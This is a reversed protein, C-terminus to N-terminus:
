LERDLRLLLSFFNLKFRQWASRAPETHYEVTKGNEMTRWIPRPHPSADLVVQYANEPSSLADFRAALADALHDSSIILGMETNLRESRQDLNMSGVFLADRDFVLWKAHLAYNGFRTM